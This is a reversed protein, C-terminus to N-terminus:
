NASNCPTPPYFEIEALRGKVSMTGYDMHLNRVVGNEYLRFSMEQNPTGEARDSNQEFFAIEVPWSRVGRLRDANLIGALESEDRAPQDSGIAANTFLMKDGKDSGDYLNVSFINKQQKAAALIAITHQVPFLAGQPLNLSLEAPQEVKVDITGSGELRQANGSVMSSPQDNDFSSQNFRFRKGEADEWTSTRLDSLNTLGDRNTIQMVYRMNQTYGECTSGVFEFVIRGNIASVDASSRAVDLELNYVARHPVLQAAAPTALIAAWPLGIAVGAVAAFRPFRAKRSIPM